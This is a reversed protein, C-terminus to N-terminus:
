YPASVLQAGVGAFQERQYASSGNSERSEMSQGIFKGAEALLDAVMESEAILNPGHM